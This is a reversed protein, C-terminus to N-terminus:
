HLKGRPSAALARARLSLAMEALGLAALVAVMLGYGVGLMIPRGPDRALMMWPGVIILAYGIGLTLPRAPARALLAHVTALGQIAFLIALTAAIAIAAFRPWGHFLALLVSGAFGLLAARPLVFERTIAPLPRPLRGSSSVLKAALFLIVLTLLASAAASAPFLLSSFFTADGKMQADSVAVDPLEELASRFATRVMEEIATRYAEYHLGLMLAAALTVMVSMGAAWLGLNALPYWQKRAAAQAATQSSATTGGPDARALLALFSLWWVPLASAVFALGLEYSDFIGWIVLGGALTAALGARHHWGLSVIAVPL